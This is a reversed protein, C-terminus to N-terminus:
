PSVHFGKIASQPNRIAFQALSISHGSLLEGGAGVIWLECDAIRLQM